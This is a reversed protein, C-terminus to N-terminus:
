QDLMVSCGSQRSCTVANLCSSNQVSVPLFVPPHPSTFVGGSGEVSLRSSSRVGGSNRAASGQQGRGRSEMGELHEWCGRAGSPRDPEGQATRSGEPLPMNQGLPASECCGKSFREPFVGLVLSQSEPKKM